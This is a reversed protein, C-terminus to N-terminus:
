FSYIDFQSFYLEQLKEFHVSYGKDWNFFTLFRFIWSFM